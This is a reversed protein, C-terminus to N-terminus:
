KDEKGKLGDSEDSKLPHYFTKGDDRADPRHKSPSVPDNAYTTRTDASLVEDMHIKTPIRDWKAEDKKEKTVTEKAEVNKRKFM